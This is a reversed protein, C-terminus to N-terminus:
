PRRSRSYRGARGPGYDEDSSFAWDVDDNGVMWAIAERYSPRKPASAARKAQEDVAQRIAVDKDMGGAILQRARAITKASAKM